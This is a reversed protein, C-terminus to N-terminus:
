CIFLNSTKRWFSSRPVFRFDTYRGLRFNSVIGLNFGKQNNSHLVYLSDQFMVEPNYKTNFDLSNISIHIWFSFRKSTM